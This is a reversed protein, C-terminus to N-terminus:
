NRKTRENKNEMIKTKHRIKAAKEPISKNLNLWIEDVDRKIFKINRGPLRPIRDTGFRGRVVASESCDFRFAAYDVGCVAAAPLNEFYTIQTISFESRLGEVLKKLDALENLIKQEFETMAILFNVKFLLKQPLHEANSM